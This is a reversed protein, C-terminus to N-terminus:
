FFLITIFYITFKMTEEVATVRPPSALKAILANGQWLALKSKTLPGHLANTLLSPTTVKALFGDTRHYAFYLTSGELLLLGFM